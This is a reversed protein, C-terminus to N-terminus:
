RVPRPVAPFVPIYFYPVMVPLAPLGYSLPIIYIRIGRPDVSFIYGDGSLHFPTKLAPDAPEFFPSTFRDPYDPKSILPPSTFPQASAAHSPLSYFLLICATVALIPFFPRISINGPRM